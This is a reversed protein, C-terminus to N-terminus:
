YSRPTGQHRCTQRGPAGGDVAAELWPLKKDAGYTLLSINGEATVKGARLLGQADFTEFILAGDKAPWARRVPSTRHYRRLAELATTNASM